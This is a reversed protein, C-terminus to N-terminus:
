FHKQMLNYGERCETCCFQADKRKNTIDRGCNKCRRVEKESHKAVIIVKM